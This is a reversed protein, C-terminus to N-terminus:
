MDVLNSDTVSLSDNKSRNSAIKMSLCSFFASISSNKHFGSRVTEELNVRRPKLKQGFQDFESAFLSGGALSLRIRSVGTWVFLQLEFLCCTASEGCFFLLVLANKLQRDIFIADLRNLFSESLAVSPLRTPM